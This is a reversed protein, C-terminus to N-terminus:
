NEESKSKGNINVKGDDNYIANGNDESQVDYETTSTEEAPLNWAYLWALNSVFFMALVVIFAIFWKRSLAKVERLLELTLKEEM